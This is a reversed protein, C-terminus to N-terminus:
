IVRYRRADKEIHSEPRHIAIDVHINLLTVFGSEVIEGDLTAGKNPLKTCAVLLHALTRKTRPQAVAANDLPSRFCAKASIPAALRRPYGPPLPPSCFFLV